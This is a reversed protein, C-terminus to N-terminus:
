VDAAEEIEWQVGYPDVFYFFKLKGVLECMQKKAQPNAELQPDFLRVEQASVPDLRHPKYDESENIMRVGPCGKLHQFADDANEVRLCIHRPGGLDNTKFNRVPGRGVPAHYQMLELFLPAALPLSLFRISVDVEGPNSLFGAGKAYGINKFNPAEHVPVAGLSRGYFQTARDVDDVVISIHGFSQLKM